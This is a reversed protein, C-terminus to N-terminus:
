SDGKKNALALRRPAKQKFFHDGYIVYKEWAGEPPDGRTWKTGEPTDEITIGGQWLCDEFHDAATQDRANLFDRRRRILYEIREDNM